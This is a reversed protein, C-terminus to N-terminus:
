RSGRACSSAGRGAQIGEQGSPGGARARVAASGRSRRETRPCGPGPRGPGGTPVALPGSGAMPCSPSVTSRSCSCPRPGAREGRRQRAHSRRAGRRRGPLSLRSLRAWRSRRFPALASRPLSRRSRGRRDRLLTLLWGISILGRRQSIPWRRRSVPCGRQSIPWRRRSFKRFSLHAPRGALAHSGAGVNGLTPDGRRVPRSRRSHAADRGEPLMGRHSMALPPALDSSAKAEPEKFSAIRVLESWPSEESRDLLRGTLALHM